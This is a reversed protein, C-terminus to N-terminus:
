WNTPTKRTDIPRTTISDSSMKIGVKEGQQWIIGYAYTGARVESFAIENHFGTAFYVQNLFLTRRSTNRSRLAPFLYYRDPSHLVFYVGSDQLRQNNYTRNSIQISEAKVELTTENLLTALGTSDGVVENASAQGLLPLWKEYFLPTHEILHGALTDQQPVLSKDPYTWNFQQTTSTRRLNYADVLHFHYTLISYLANLLVISSVYPSLFSGRIPIVIYLYSILLLTFSYIKYRSTLLGDLGFGARSYVVILATGLIFLLTALCFLDTIKAFDYEYRNRILRFLITSGISLAVLLMIGGLIFCYIQHNQVPFSEAFSGLIYLYGKLFVGVGFSTSPTAPSSEYTYFYVFLYFASVALWVLLRRWRPALFLVVAMTPLVLLGNGSTLCAIAAFVLSAVFYSRRRSVGFYFTLLSFTVVGFNQVSAMGWYMNEYHALTLWIFPIPILTYFPKNNKHLLVWWLAIVGVLLVNGYLMLRKFNLGGFLQYDILAFLRTVSIRHENHQKFLAIIKGFFTDALTYELLFAKLAHDDWKPINIAYYDWVWFYIGIPILLSIVILLQSAWRSM